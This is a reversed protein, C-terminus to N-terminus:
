RAAFQPHALVKEFLEAARDDPWGHPLRKESRKFREIWREDLPRELNALATSAVTTDNKMGTSRGYGVFFGAMLLAVRVPTAASYTYLDTTAGAAKRVIEFTSVDWLSRDARPSYFDYFVVEPARAKAANARFDGEHLLWELGAAAFRRERLLTEVGQEFGEFYPLHERNAFALELGTVDSEFSEVRMARAGARGRTSRWAQLAALANTAAGLGVDWLVLEGGGNVLREAFRSQEIYLLRAEERPGVNSHMVEGSAVHRLSM